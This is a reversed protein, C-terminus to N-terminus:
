IMQSKLALERWGRDQPVFQPWFDYVAEIHAMAEYWTAYATGMPHWDELGRRWQVVWVWRGDVARAPWEVIMMRTNVDRLDMRKIRWHVPIRYAM